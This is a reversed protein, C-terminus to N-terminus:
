APKDLPLRVSVCAGQGPRAALHFEAGIAEARERMTALGFHPRGGGGHGDRDLHFGVGNDRITVELVLGSNRVVVQVATAQAHKRVNTLAEQVIRLLQVETEPPLALQGVSPSLEVSVPLDSLSSFHAAYAQLLASLREDRRSTLRLGLIAERVDVFLGRAAAELQALQTEAAPLQQRALLLRVATAKTHVYGLVQALGDHLERAIREREEVIARQRLEARATAAQAQRALQDALRNFSVALEDLEDAAAGGTPLRVGFDGAAYAALPRRFAEVRRVVLRHLLGYLGVTAVLTIGASIALDIQLSQVAHPWLIRMPVDVLLVGLHVAAAPHCAACEPENNIPVAVRLAHADSNVVVAAPRQGPAARHCATCGPETVSQVVGPRALGSDVLVRGDSDMIQAREITDRATIDALVADMLTPHNALMSQRLSGLVVQSIQTATLQAQDTLLHRERWYHALSLLTLTLFIPLGLGLAVRARLNHRFFVRLAAGVRPALPRRPRWLPVVQPQDM